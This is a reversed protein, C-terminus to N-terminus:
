KDTAELLNPNNFINGIVKMVPGLKDAFSYNHRTGRHYFLAKDEEWCVEFYGEGTVDECAENCCEKTIDHEWILRQNCDKAGTCRCVTAPDVIHFMLGVGHHIDTAIIHRQYGNSFTQYIYYGTVWRGNDINKAKCLRYYEM